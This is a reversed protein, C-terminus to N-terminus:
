GWVERRYARDSGTVVQLKPASMALDPNSLGLGSTLIAKVFARRIM